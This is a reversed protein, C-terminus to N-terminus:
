AAQQQKSETVAAKELQELQAKVVSLQEVFRGEKQEWAEDHPAPMARLAHLNKNLMFARWRVTTLSTDTESDPLSSNM